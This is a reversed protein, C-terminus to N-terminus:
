LNFVQVLPPGSRSGNVRMTRQCPARALALRGKSGLAKREAVVRVGIQLVQCPRDFCLPVVACFRAAAVVV